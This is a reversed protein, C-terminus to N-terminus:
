AAGKNIAMSKTDPKWKNIAPKIGWGALDHLTLQTSGTRHTQKPEIVFVDAFHFCHSKTSYKKQM